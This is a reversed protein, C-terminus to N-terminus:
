ANNDTEEVLKKIRSYMKDVDNIQILENIHEEDELIRSLQTLAKLHAEGDIAALVFILKVYKDADAEGDKNFNVENNVKLLSIGLKEVGREPRAHPIAVKPALVIYPGLEEVTEIMATIYEDNIYQQEVLPQAAESIAERWTLKKDTIRILSRDLVEELDKLRGEEKTKKHFIYENLENILSDRDIIKTNREIIKIIERARLTIPQSLSPFDKSVQERLIEKEIQNLIPSTVYVNKTSHIYITSFILDYSEKDIEYIQDLNHTNAITIEPFTERITSVMILSSSIGNPCVVLANLPEDNKETSDEKIYGGFHITFYAIESETIPINIEKELPKLIIKTLNFLESYDNKVKELLPNRYYVNFLLRYYAPVIHQFLTKKLENHKYQELHIIGLLQFLIEDVLYNFYSTNPELNDKHIIGLLRSELFLTENQYKDDFLMKSLEITVEYLPHSKLISIKKEKYVLKSGSARKILFPILCIFEEMRDFVVQLNNRNIFDNVTNTLEEISIPSNWRKLFIKLVDNLRMSNKLKSISKEMLRRINHEPGNLEYGKSRTYEVQVKHSNTWERLSRLDIMIANRSLGFFSQFHAVSLFEDGSAIYLYLFYIREEQLEFLPKRYKELIEILNKKLEDNINLYGNQYGIEIGFFQSLDTNLISLEYWIKKKNQNLLVCIRDIDKEEIEIINKLLDYSTSRLM